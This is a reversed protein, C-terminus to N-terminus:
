FVLLKACLMGTKGGSIVIEACRKGPVLSRPHLLRGGYFFRTVQQEPRGGV